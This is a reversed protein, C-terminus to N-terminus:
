NQVATYLIQTGAVGELRFTLPVADGAPVNPVVVNFQYLGVVGPALGAYSVAAPTGGFLIQLPAVLSNPEPTLVGPDVMPIVAGFGVGYLVITEGPLASRSAVGAIAGAPLAFTAGDGILAAAYQRGGARFAAPALLGPQAAKVTITYPASTGTATTVTVQHVGPALNSPVLANVQGPSIYAVFAPQGGIKVKTEDLSTPALTGNFDAGTWSRARVALNSGYIEFWSGPAISSFGGFASSSVVGGPSVVPAPLVTEPLPTLLRVRGNETDSIYISGGSGLAVASPFRLQASTAPGGDGGDGFGGTGAVTTIIGQATVLRVRANHSDAIFLNGAGNVVVSRPYNLTAQTAPGGDGSFGPTGTGAVTRIIGDPTVKRIVFNSTDAIYLNGAADVAVGQPANLRAGTAADGDGTRGVFGNGAVTTITGGSSMKRIRHNRTDAIYLNGAPDATVGVPGNLYAKGAEGGDGFFGAATTGAVTSINGGTAIKRVVNSASDALFLNGSSDLALGGTNALTAKAAAGGDGSYGFTGDGAITSITGDAAVKRIRKNIQDAIYLNGASDRVIGGPNNLQASTAAGGDGAFGNTGNGAVTTISYRPLVQAQGLAPLLACTAIMLQIQRM